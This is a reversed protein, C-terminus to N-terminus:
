VTVADIDSVYGSPNGIQIWNAGAQLTIPFTTTQPTDWDNNNTGVLNLSVDNLGNVSATAQRSSDGDVYSMTMLYTGAKPVTISELILNSGGGVNGVKEGGSCKACSGISAGGTLRNDPAEAEYTVRGGAAPTTLTLSSSPASTHHGAVAAVTFTHASV